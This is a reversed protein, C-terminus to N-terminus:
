EQAAKVWSCGRSTLFHLSAVSLMYGLVESLSDRGVESGCIIFDSM